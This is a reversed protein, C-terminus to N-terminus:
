NSVLISTMSRNKSIYENTYLVMLLKEPLTIKLIPRQLERNRYNEIYCAASFASKKKKKKPFHKFILWFNCPHSLFCILTHLLFIEFNVSSNIKVRYALKLQGYRLVSRHLKSNGTKDSHMLYHSLLCVHAWFLNSFQFSYCGFTFIFIKLAPYLPVGACRGLFCLLM